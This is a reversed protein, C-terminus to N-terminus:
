TSGGARKGGGRRIYKVVRHNLADAVYLNEAGDFCIGWPNNLQALGTGAGGLIELSRGEQDFLQVRSNGFECVFIVGDADVKVDYPYSLEGPGQGARGISRLFKGNGDFIQIRHNGSDAVYVRGKSDVGIGEARDFQGEGTGRSGFTFRFTQGDQGFCQIRDAPGYESVYVDGSPAVAISRPFALQGANTGNVGWQRLLRGDLDFHNVRTYHPEVLIIGGRPDRDMGKPKGKETQPMDWLRDYEGGASFRQLRGSMDIVFLHDKADCALSRPKNFLGPGMGRSGILRVSAFRESRLQAQGHEAQNCGMNATACGILVLSTFWRHSLNRRILAHIAFGGLLLGCPVLILVLTLANAQPAHGYHLLNFLRLALTEGGAPMLFVQTEADWLSFSFVAGMGAVCAPILRPLRMWALRQGLTAGSLASAEHQAGANARDAFFMLCGALAAFHVGQVMSMLGLSPYAWGLLSNNFFFVTFVGLVMGPVLLLLWGFALALRWRALVMGLCGGIIAAGLSVLLSVCLSHWGAQLTPALALYTSPQGLLWAMPFVLSGFLILVSLTSAAAYVWGLRARWVDAPLSRKSTTRWLPTRLLLILLLVPAIIMPLAALLAGQFDFQTNFRLWVIEGFLNTQLLTPVTVQGLSLTATVVGAIGGMQLGVPVLLHRVLPIRTLSTEAELHELHISAWAMRWAQFSIPWFIGSLIVLVGGVSYISGPWLHGWHGGAGFFSLAVTILLFPPLVLVLLSALRFLKQGMPPLGKECLAAAMGGVLCLTAVGTAVLLSNLFTIFSLAM